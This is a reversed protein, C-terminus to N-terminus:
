HKNTGRWHQMREINTTDVGVLLWEWLHIILHQL